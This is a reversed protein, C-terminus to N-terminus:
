WCILICYITWNIFRFLADVQSDAIGFRMKLHIGGLFSEQVVRYVEFDYRNGSRCCFLYRLPAPKQSKLVCRWGRLKTARKGGTLTFPNLRFHRWLVPSTSFGVCCPCVVEPCPAGGQGWGECATQHDLRHVAKRERGLIGCGSDHAASQLRSIRRSAKSSQSCVSPPEDQGM